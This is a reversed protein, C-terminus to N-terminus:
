YAKKDPRQLWQTFLELCEKKLLGEVAKVKSKGYRIMDLNCLQLENFGADKADKISTGYYILPIKAWHIASFCMPCPETTSYIICDSLDIRSLKGCAKRIANIEAHATIDTDSWVSNHAYEILQGDRAICAGFPTQGSEMGERAAMIAHRMFFEDGSKKTSPTKPRVIVTESAYPAGDGSEM